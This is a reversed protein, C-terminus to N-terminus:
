SAYLYQWFLDLGWSILVGWFNHRASDKDSVSQQLTDLTAFETAFGVIAELGIGLEVYSCSYSM